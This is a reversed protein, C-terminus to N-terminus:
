GALRATPPTLRSAAALVPTATIRMSRAALQLALEHFTGWHLGYQDRLPPPLLGATSLRHAPVFVRLPAPLRAELIVAAVDKAPATVEITEGNIEAAFYERFDALSRPIVAAPTGFLRAVLAMEQYYREQDERSLPDVFREYAALSAQVLTAHVWLMLEPDCASYRTGPPFRGLRTRTSGHVRAHVAQVVKAAREAEEKTGFAILYLARLTQVLRRWLDRRVDSHEFVGAAVLPHAVQLLVAPGGGLFPVLPTNGLRRIVSEPAFYGDRSRLRQAHTTARSGEASARCEAM